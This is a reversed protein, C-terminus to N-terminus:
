DEDEEDEDPEDEWVPSYDFSTQLVVKKVFRNYLLIYGALLLASILTIVFGAKLGPTQYEFVIENDGQPVRVACLGEYVKDIETKNGNVYATFGESYPVCFFVLSEKDLKIKAEFGKPNEEFEYCAQAQAKKCDEVYGAFRLHDTTKEVTDEFCTMIDSYKEIQEDTLYCAAMLLNQKTQASYENYKETDFYMDYAFGMPVHYDNQYIDFGNQTDYYSFGLLILDVDKQSNGVFDFYYKTSTFGRLAYISTEPRTAVSREVGIFRYFNMVSGNVVSQFARINAYDGWLM